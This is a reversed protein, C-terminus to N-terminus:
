NARAWLLSEAEGSGRCAARCPCWDMSACMQYVLHLSLCGRAVPCLPPALVQDLISLSPTILMFPQCLQLPAITAQLPNCSCVSPPVGAAQPLTCRHGPPCVQLRPPVGAAQPHVQLRPPPAGAAQPACRCSPPRVQLRPTFRCHSLPPSVGAAKLPAGTAQPAMLRCGARHLGAPVNQRHSFSDAVM